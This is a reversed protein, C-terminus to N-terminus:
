KWFGGSIRDWGQLDQWCQVQQFGNHQLLEAIAHSQNFGHELLLLGNAVLYSRSHHIIQRIAELGDAGSVLAMSPEFRLDGMTLHPDDDAIYPPNAIIADFRQPTLNDFWDSVIFSVNSIALRTANGRAVAIASASYDTAIIQWQPKEVALALAIAGSGTGLDLIRAHPKNGLQQLTLEVLQETEPRPILTAPTVQLTLTWFDRQGILYAIPHGLLRQNLLQQYQHHQKPNLATEPARYLTTRSTQLVHCLLCEADSVPTSSIAALKLRADSLVQSISSSM